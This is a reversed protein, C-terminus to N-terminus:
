RRKRGIYVAGAVVAAGAAAAGALILFGFDAGGAGPGPPGVPTAVLALDISKTEIGNSVRATVTHHGPSLTLDITRSVGVIEGDLLWTVTIEAGLPAAASLSFTLPVLAEVEHAVAGNVGIATLEPLPPPPVAVVVHGSASGSRGFGDTANVRVSHDGPGLADPLQFHFAGDLVPASFQRALDVLIEVDLAAAGPPESWVAVTGNVWLGGLRDAQLTVTLRPANAPDFVAVQVTYVARLGWGDDVTVKLVATLNEDPSAHAVTLVFTAPDVSATLGAVMGDVTFRLTDGNPDSATLKVLKTGSAAIFISAPGEITPALNGPRATIHLTAPATTLTAGRLDTVLVRYSLDAPPTPGLFAVSLSTGTAFLDVTTWGPEAGKLIAYTVQRIYRDDTFYTSLNLVDPADAGAAVTLDPLPQVQSPPVNPPATVTLCMV